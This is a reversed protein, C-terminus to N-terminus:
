SRTVQRRGSPTILPAFGALRRTRVAPRQRPRREIALSARRVVEGYPRRAVDSLPLQSRTSSVSRREQTGEGRAMRAVAADDAASAKGAYVWAFRFALGAALYMVSALDHECAGTRLAVLRLSLGLAVLSM